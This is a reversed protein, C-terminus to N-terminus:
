RPMDIARLEEILEALEDEEIECSAAECLWRAATTPQKFSRFQVGLVQILQEGLHTVAAAMLGVVGGMLLAVAEIGPEHAAERWYSRVEIPPMPIVREAILVVPLPGGNRQARCFELYDEHAVKALDLTILDAYRALHVRGTGATALRGPEHVRVGL